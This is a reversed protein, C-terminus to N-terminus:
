EEEDEPGRTERYYVQFKRRLRKQRWRRYSDGFPMRPWRPGRLYLWGFLMGGLHAINAVGSGPATLSFWFAMVGMILALFRAEIPIIGWILLTQRPFLVGYALIIGYIAGSAGITPILSNPGVATTSIGAGIGTIFYFRLFKATGWLKELPPGMFWLAIMNFAIHWVGGHLFMYTALQWVFLHHVVDYPVLGFLRDFRVQAVVGSVLQLTFVAVNALVLNLVAPPISGGFGSSRPRWRYASM